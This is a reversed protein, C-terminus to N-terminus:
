GIFDNRVELRNLRTQISHRDGTAEGCVALRNSSASMWDECVRTADELAQHQDVAMEIDCLYTNSRSCLADYMSSLQSAKKQAVTSLLERGM